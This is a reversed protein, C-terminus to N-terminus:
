PGGGPLFTAACGGSGRARGPSEASTVPDTGSAGAAFGASLAGLAGLGTAAFGVMTGIAGSSYCRFPAAVFFRGPMGPRKSNALRM